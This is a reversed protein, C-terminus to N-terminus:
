NPTILARCQNTTGCRDAGTVAPDPTFNFYLLTHPSVICASEYPNVGLLNSSNKDIFEQDVLQISHSVSSFKCKPNSPNLDGPTVSAAGSYSSFTEGTEARGVKLQLQM